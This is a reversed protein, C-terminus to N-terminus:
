VAGRRVRQVQENFGGYIFSELFSINEWFL